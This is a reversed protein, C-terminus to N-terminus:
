LVVTYTQGGKTIEEEVGYFPTNRYNLASNGQQNAKLVSM